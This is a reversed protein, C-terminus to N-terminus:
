IQTALEELVAQHTAADIEKSLIKEAGALALVSVQSRLQEKMRNIEKEIEAQASAKIRDGESSAHERAEEVIENARKQAQTIIESAQQKAESIQEQVKVQAREEAQMGEEAAALGDAIKKKREALAAMIPPWVFKMCFWIFIIFAITQGFLTANLNV